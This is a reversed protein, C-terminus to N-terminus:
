VGIRKEFLANDSWGKRLKSVEFNSSRCIEHQEPVGHSM